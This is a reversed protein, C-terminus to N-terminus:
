WTPHRVSLPTFPTFSTISTIVTISSAAEWVDRGEKVDVAKAYTLTTGM